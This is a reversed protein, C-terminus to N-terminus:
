PRRKSCAPAWRMPSRSAARARRGRRPRRRRAAFARQTRASRRFRQRHAALDCRRAEPRRHHACAGQGRARHSRRGRGPPLRSLPRSLGTRFLNRQLPGPTWLCIRPDSREALATLGFRFAQFFPALREVNMDRYLAPFARSLVLRNALAYGAGSPAQARDGLVWWRGDPGRGLDAAYFHLFKGGPPTVGHLPHLFDASGTVAAAPLDGAAILAGAGYIDALIREMLERASSWARRSRAGSM